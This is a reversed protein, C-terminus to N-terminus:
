MVKFYVQMDDEYFLLVAAKNGHNGCYNAASFVTTIYPWAYQVHRNDCYAFGM